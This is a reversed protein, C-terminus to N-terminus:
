GGGWAGPSAAVAAHPMLFVDGVSLAAALLVADPALGLVAGVAVLKGQAGCACAPLPCPPLPYASPLFPSDAGKGTRGGM